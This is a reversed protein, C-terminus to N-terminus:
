GRHADGGEEIPDIGDQSRPCASCDPLLGGTLSRMRCGGLLARSRVLGLALGATLLGLGVLSAAFLALM